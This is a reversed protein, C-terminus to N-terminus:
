RSKVIEAYSKRHVPTDGAVDHIVVNTRNERRVSNGIGAHVDHAVDPTVRKNERDTCAYTGVDHEEGKYEQATRGHTGCDRIEEKEGKVTQGYTGGYPSENIINSRSDISELSVNNGVREQDGSPPPEKLTSIHKAGMVVDRFMRFLKGQLPKTYFDALMEETPCYVVNINETDLRNKMFFYRIDIHRSGPGCSRVGNEILTMSSQNDQNFDSSKLIIGQHKLFLGSWIVRPIYDSGGSIESETTSKTNLKQKSSQPMLVGTGFSM